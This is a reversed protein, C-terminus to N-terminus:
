FRLFFCITFIYCHPQPIGNWVTALRMELKWGRLAYRLQLLNVKGKWFIKELRKIISFHRRSRQLYYQPYFAFIPSLPIIQLHRQISPISLLLVELHVSTLSCDPLQYVKSPEGVKGWWMLFLCAVPFIMPEYDGVTNDNTEGGGTKGKGVSLVRGLSM